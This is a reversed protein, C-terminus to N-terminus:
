WAPPAPRARGAVPAGTRNVVAATSAANADVCSGACVTVTRWVERRPLGTAPDVIHHVSTVVWVGGGRRPGRRRWVAAFRHPRDRRRDDGVGVTGDFGGALRRLRRGNRHRRRPLRGRRVRLQGASGTPSGIPPWPRPPPAWTSSSAPRSDCGDPSRPRDRHEGDPYRSPEPLTGDRGGAVDAFDRDYGLRCLAPGVTPDVAGDTATAAGLAVRIAEFLGDSVVIPDGGARHVRSCSPIPASGAPREISASSSRRRPDRPRPSPAPTPSSCSSGPAWRPTPLRPPARRRRSWGDVSEPRSTLRHRRGCRHPRRLPCRRHRPQATSSSAPPAAASMPTSASTSPAATVSPAPSTPSPSTPRAVQGAATSM